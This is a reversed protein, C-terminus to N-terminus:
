GTVEKEWGWRSGLAMSMSLTVKYLSVGVSFALHIRSPRQKQQLFVLWLAVM